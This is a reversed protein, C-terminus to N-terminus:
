KLYELDDPSTELEEILFFFDFGLMDRLVVVCGGALWGMWGDVVLCVVVLCGGVLWGGVLWGM